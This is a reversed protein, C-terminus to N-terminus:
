ILAVSGKALLYGTGVASLIGAAILGFRFWRNEEGSFFDSHSAIILGISTAGALTGLGYGTRFFAFMREFGIKTGEWASKVAPIIYNNFGASIKRGSWIAANKIASGASKIGAVFGDKVKSIEM